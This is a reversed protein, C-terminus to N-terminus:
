DPGSKVCELVQEQYGKFWEEPLPFERSAGAFILDDAIKSTQIKLGLKRAFVFWRAVDELLRQLQGLYDVRDSVKGQIKYHQCEKGAGSLAEVAIEILSDV